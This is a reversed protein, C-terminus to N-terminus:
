TRELLKARAGHLSARLAALSPAEIDLPRTGYDLVSGRERPGLAHIRWGALPMDEDLQPAPDVREWQGGLELRSEADSGLGSTFTLDFRIVSGSRDVRGQLHWPAPWEGGASQTAIRVGESGHVDVPTEHEIAEPGAALAHELLELVLKLMIVPGDLADIEAGPPLELGKSLLLRGEVVVLEGALAEDPARQDLRLRLDDHEALEFQWDGISIGDSARLAIRNGSEWPNM